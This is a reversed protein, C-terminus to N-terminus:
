HNFDDVEAEISTEGQHDGRMTDRTVTLPFLGVILM